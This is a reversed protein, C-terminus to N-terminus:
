PQSCQPIEACEENCGPLPAIKNDLLYAVSQPTAVASSFEGNGVEAFSSSSIDYKAPPNCPLPAIGDPAGPVAPLAVRFPSTKFSAFSLSPLSPTGSFPIMAQHGDYDILSINGCGCGGYGCTCTWNNDIQQM